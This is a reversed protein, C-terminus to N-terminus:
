ARVGGVVRDPDQAFSEALPRYFLHATPRGQAEIRRVMADCFVPTLALVTAPDEGTLEAYGTLAAGAADHYPTGGDRMQEFLWAFGHERYAPWAVLAATLVLNLLDLACVGDAAYDEWDILAAGDGAVRYNWPGMDGHVPGRGARRLADVTVAPYRDAVDAPVDLGGRRLPGATLHVAAGTVAGATLLRHWGAADAVALADPLDGEGVYEMVFGDGIRAVTRPVVTSTGALHTLADWERAVMADAPDLAVKAVHVQRGDVASSVFLRRCHKRESRPVWHRFALDGRVDHPHLTRLDEVVRPLLDAVPRSM